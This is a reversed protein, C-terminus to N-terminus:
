VGVGERELRGRMKGLAKDKIQRVRERTVGRAEGIERLKQPEGGDLGYYAEIVDREGSRLVGVADRIHQREENTAVMDDPRPADEGLLEAQAEVLVGVIPHDFYLYELGPKNLLKEARNETICMAESLIDATMPGETRGMVQHMRRKDERLNPPERVLSLKAIAENVVQRIWWVAYTIFRLGREPDWRDAAEIMGLYAASLLEQEARHHMRSVINLAFTMHRQVLENRADIDGGRIRRGLEREEERTPPEGAREIDMQQAKSLEM